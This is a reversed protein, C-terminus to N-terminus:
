RDLHLICRLDDIERTSRASMAIREVEERKQDEGLM